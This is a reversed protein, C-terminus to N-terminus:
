YSNQNNYNNVKNYRQMLTNLSNVNLNRPKQTVLHKYNINRKRGNHNITIPSHLEVKTGIYTYFKNTQINRLTFELYQKQENSNKIYYNKELRTFIKKAAGLPTKSKYRGSETNFKPYDVITYTQM